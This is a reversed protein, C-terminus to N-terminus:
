LLLKNDGATSVQASYPCPAMPFEPLDSVAMGCVPGSLYRRSNQCCRSTCTPIDLQIINQSSRIPAM